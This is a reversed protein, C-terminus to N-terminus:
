SQERGKGSKAASKRTGWWKRGGPTAPPPAPAPAAPKAPPDHRPIAPPPGDGRRFGSIAALIEAGYRATKVEGFGPVSRLQAVTSPQLRCLADLSTDHLIVFAPVKQQEAAARRWHRLHERLGSDVPANQRAVPHAPTAPRSEDRAPSRRARKPSQELTVPEELWSIRTGCIDCV